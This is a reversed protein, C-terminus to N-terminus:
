DSEASCCYCRDNGLLEGLLLEAGAEAQSMYTPSVGVKRAFERLTFQEEVCWRRIYQGFTERKKVM